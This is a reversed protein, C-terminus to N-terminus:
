TYGLRRFGLLSAFLNALQLEFAPVDRFWIATDDIRRSYFNDSSTGWYGLRITTSAGFIPVSVGVNAADTVQGSSNLLQLEKQGRTLAHRCVTRMTAATSGLPNALSLDFISSGLGTTTHRFLYSTGTYKLSWGREGNVANYPGILGRQNVTSLTGENVCFVTMDGPPNFVTQSYVRNVSASFQASRGGNALLPDGDQPSSGSIPVWNRGHPGSDMRNGSGTEDLGWAGQLDAHWRHMWRRRAM